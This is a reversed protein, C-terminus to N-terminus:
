APLYIIFTSGKGDVGHAQIFGHHNEVIKKCIALGIGTGSYKTKPHLRQFVEFIKTASENDFGIGNDTLTIKHYHNAAKIFAEPIEQHDVKESIIAIRPAEEPNRYKISNSVLNGFLQELQFGVGQVTPLKEWKIEAKEAKIREAYEEKVKQLVKDLDIPEFDDHTSDIRSYNLLNRILSQMRAAVKDIRDFYGRGRESLKNKEEGDIRSIFMQIKRLPEQLDHSVVRNFSELEVNSRELELNNLRLVNETEVQSTVDQVVGILVTRGQRQIYVGKTRIYKVQGQKSIIKFINERPEQRSKLRKGNEDYKTLDDPHIINRFSELTPEFEKPEYGLIRYYNDSLEIVDMDLDWTYSGIQAVRKAETMIFNQVELEQNLKLLNEKANYEETNNRVVELIGGDMARVFTHFWYQEGDVTVQREFDITKNQHFCEIMRELENNQLVFPFVKSIPKGLLEDPELNLYDRNCINAFMVKFDVVKGNSDRMPEYYNMINDTSQVINQLLAESSQIKNKHRRLRFFAITFVLISFLALFLTTLPTLFTLRRYATLRDQLFTENHQLMNRKIGRLQKLTAAANEVYVMATSDALLPRVKGHLATLTIHLSDKFQAVSDLSTRHYPMEEVLGYLRNFTQDSEIKHDIYSEEFTSDRLIVSRFEASEMLDYQTFLTNIEKDVTLSHSVSEASIELRKIQRFLVTTIFLLLGIAMVLALNDVVPSRAIRRFIKLDM